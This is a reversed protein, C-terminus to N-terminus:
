KKGLIKLAGKIKEESKKVDKPLENLAKQAQFKSYGLAVLADVAETDAKFGSRDIGPLIEVKSKLELVIRQATKKGVRPIRSLYEHDETLIASQITHADLSSIVANALSPGVGSISTLLLFVHLDDPDTFGYVDFTGENTNMATHTYLKVTHGIKSISNKAREPLYVKYGVGNVDIIVYKDAVLAVKGNLYSFM